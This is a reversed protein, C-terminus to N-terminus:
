GPPQRHNLMAMRCGPAPAGQAEVVYNVVVRTSVAIQAYFKDLRASLYADVQPPPPVGAESVARITLPSYPPDVKLSEEVLKPILGAHNRHPFLGPVAYSSDLIQLSELAEQSPPGSLVLNFELVATPQVLMGVSRRTSFLWCRLVHSGHAWAFYMQISSHGWM